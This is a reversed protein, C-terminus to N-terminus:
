GNWLRMVNVSAGVERSRDALERLADVAVALRMELGLVKNKLANVDFRLSENERSLDHTTKKTHPSHKAEAVRLKEQSRGRKRRKKKRGWDGSRHTRARKEWADLKIGCLSRMRDCLRLEKQDCDSVKIGDAFEVYEHCTNCLSILFHLHDARGDLVPETYRRHHVCKAKQFCCQCKYDDRAFVSGRIRAWKPSRLYESYSQTM